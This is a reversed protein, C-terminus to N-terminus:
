KAATSARQRDANEKLIMKKEGKWGSLRMWEGVSRIRDPLIEDLTKYDRVSYKEGAAWHRWFGSFNEEYTQLTSTDPQGAGVLRNLPAGVNRSFATQFYEEMEVPKYIARKGTVETFTSALGEGTAHQTSVRLIQGRSKSPNDLQWRVYRGFDTLSILPLSGAKGLPLDFIWTDTETDHYPAWSSALGELYPGSSIVSWGM